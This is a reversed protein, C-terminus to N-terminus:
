RFAGPCAPLPAAIVFLSSDVLKKKCIAAIM